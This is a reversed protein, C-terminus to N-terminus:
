LWAKATLRSRDLKRPTRYGPLLSRIRELYNKNTDRCEEKVGFGGPISDELGDIGPGTGVFSLFHITEITAPTPRNGGHGLSAGGRESVDLLGWARAGVLGGEPAKVPKIHRQHAAPTGESPRRPGSTATRPM